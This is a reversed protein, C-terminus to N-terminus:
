QIDNISSNYKNTNNFQAILNKIDNKESIIKSIEFEVAKELEYSSFSQKNQIAYANHLDIDTMGRTGNLLIGGTSDSQLHYVQGNMEMGKNIYSEPIPANGLFNNNSVDYVGYEGTMSSSDLSVTVMMQSNPEIKEVIREGFRQQPETFYQTNSPAKNYFGNGELAYKVQDELIKGNEIKVPAMELQNGSLTQKGPGYGIAQRDGNNSLSFYTTGTASALSYGSGSLGMLQNPDMNTDWNTVMSLNESSKSAMSLLESDMNFYMDTGEFPKQAGNVVLNDLGLNNRMNSMNQIEKTQLSNFQTDRIKGFNKSLNKNYYPSNSDLLGGSTLEAFLNSAELSGTKLGEKDIVMNATDFISSSLEAQAFDNANRMLQDKRSDSLALEGNNFTVKRTSPKSVTSDGKGVRLIKKGENTNKYLVSQNKDIYLEADKVGQIEESSLNNNSLLSYSLNGLNPMGFNDFIKEAMRARQEKEKYKTNQLVPSTIGLKKDKESQHSQSLKVLDYTGKSTSIASSTISGVKDGIQSGLYGAGAGMMIATSPNGFAMAGATTGLGFTVGTYTSALGRLTNKRATNLRNKVDAETIVKGRNNITSLQGTKPDISGSERLQKYDGLAGVGQSLGEKFNSVGRKLGQVGMTGVRYAGYLMGIGAMAKAGGVRGELGLFGKLTSTFPIVFAFATMVYMAQSFSMEQGTVSSSSFYAISIAVTMCISHITQTFINSNIEQFWMAVAGRKFPHIVSIIPFCVFLFSISIDRIFYYFVMWVNIFVAMLYTVAHVTTGTDFAQKKMYNLILGQKLLEQDGNIIGVVASYMIKVLSNNVLIIVDLISPMCTLLLFVFLLKTGFDKMQAKRIPNDGARQLFFTFLLGIPIMFVETIDNFLLYLSALTKTISDAPGKNMTLVSGQNYVVSDIRNVLGSEFFVADLITAFQRLFFSLVTDLVTTTADMIIGAHTSDMFLLILIGLTIFYKKSLIFKRVKNDKHMVICRGEQKDQKSKNRYVGM